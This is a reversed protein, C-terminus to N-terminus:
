QEWPFPHQPPPIDGDTTVPKLFLDIAKGFGLSKKHIQESALLATIKAAAETTAIEPNHLTGRVPIKLVYTPPLHTINFSRQLTEAPLGLFLHLKEQKMDIDGWLCLHISRAVLADVRSLEVVGKQMRFTVPTTWIETQKSSSLPTAKLFQLLTNLPRGNECILQNLNLTGLGIQVQDLSFPHLPISFGEPAIRLTIPNRAAIGTVWLPNISATLADSLSSTMQLSLLLPETLTLRDEQLRGVCSANAHPSQLTLSFTGESVKKQVTAQADLTPGLAQLLLQKAQCLRDVLAVPLNQIDVKGEFDAFSRFTGAISLHGTLSNYLTKGQIQISTGQIQGEIDEIQEKGLAATSFTGQHLTIHPDKSKLNWLPTDIQLSGISAEMDGQTVALGKVLQPGFWSLQLTELEIHAGTKAELAEIVLTKGLRHSLFLPLFALLLLLFLLLAGVWKLFNM